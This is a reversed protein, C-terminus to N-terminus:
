NAKTWIIEKKMMGAKAIFKIKNGQLYAECNATTNKQPNSLVGVWKGDTFTLDKLVYVNKGIPKGNFSANAKAIEIIVGDITKWKGSFNDTPKQAFLFTSFCLVILLSFSKQM